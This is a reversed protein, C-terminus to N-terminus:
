LEFDSFAMLIVNIDTYSTMSKYMILSVMFSVRYISVTIADDRSASKNMLLDCFDSLTLSRQLCCVTYTSCLIVIPPLHIITSTQLHHYLLSM